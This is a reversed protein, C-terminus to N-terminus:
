LFFYIPSSAPASASPRTSGLLLVLLGREAGPDRGIGRALLAVAGRDRLEVPQDRWFVAASRSLTRRAKSSGPAARNRPSRLGIAPRDLAGLGIRLAFAPELVAVALEALLPQGRDLAAEIRGDVAQDELLRQGFIALQSGAVADRAEVGRQRASRCPARHAVGPEAVGRGRRAHSSLGAAANSAEFSGNM